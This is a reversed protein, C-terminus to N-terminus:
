LNAPGKKKKSQAAIKEYMAIVQPQIVDQDLRERAVKANLEAARDVLVDETVARRIAAAIPEPDEPPVLLGNEGHSIWEATSITDSQIPFAGMVMAELMSNPTGDSVSVSIGLRSSGMLKIITEHPGHELMEFRIGTERSVDEALRVTQVQASYVKVTYGQLVDACLRLARLAVLARGVWSSYGKLAITRRASVPGSQIWQRMRSIEYGGGGPFVGLVEGKLGFSRALAVDRQCDAIYYDCAGLVERIRSEHEAQRGFWYLDNGWCSYIWPAPLKGGLKRRVELLPYSENQMELSHIIDPKLIRILKTLTEVRSPFVLRSLAPFRHRMFGVLMPFRAVCHVKTFEPTLGSERADFVHIDWGQGKLQSVWRATHISNAMAIFLIRLETQEKNRPNQRIYLQRRVLQGLQCGVLGSGM